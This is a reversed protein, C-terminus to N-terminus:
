CFVYATDWNWFLFLQKLNTNILESPSRLDLEWIEPQTCYPGLEAAHVM